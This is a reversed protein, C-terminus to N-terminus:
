PACECIFYRQNQGCLVANWQGNQLQVCAGNTVEPEGSGWAFYLQPEGLVTIWQQPGPEDDASLVGLWAENTLAVLLSNEEEDDPIALYTHPPALDACENFAALWSRREDPPRYSHEGFPIFDAPCQFAADAPGGDTPPRADTTGPTGDIVGTDVRTDDLGFIQRCGTVTIAAAAIVIAASPPPHM